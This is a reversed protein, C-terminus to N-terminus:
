GWLLPFANHPTPIRINRRFVDFSPPNKGYLNSGVPNLITLNPSITDKIVYVDNTSTNGHTNNLFFQIHVFGDDMSEWLDQDITGNDLVTYNIVGNDITYWLVDM